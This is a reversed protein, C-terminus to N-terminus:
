VRSICLRMQRTVILAKIRSIHWWKNCYCKSTKPIQLFASLYVIFHSLISTEMRLTKNLWRILMMYCSFILLKRYFVMTLAIKLLKMIKCKLHKTQLLHRIKFVHHKRRFLTTLQRVSQFTQRNKTCHISCNLVRLINRFIRM